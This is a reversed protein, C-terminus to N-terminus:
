MSIHFAKRLAVRCCTGSARMRKSLNWRAAFMQPLRQVLHALAFIGPQRARAALEDLALFVRQEGVVSIECEIASTRQGLQKLCVLTQVCGIQELFRKTLQPGVLALSPCPTEKFVPPLRKFPPTQLEVLFKGAHNVQM